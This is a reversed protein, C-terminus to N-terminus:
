PSMSLSSYMYFLLNPFIQPHAPPSTPSPISFGCHLLFLYSTLIAVHTAGLSWMQYFMQSIVCNRKCSSFICAGFCYYMNHLIVCM